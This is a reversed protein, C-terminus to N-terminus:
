PKARELVGTGLLPRLEGCAASPMTVFKFDCINGRFEPQTQDQTVSVFSMDTYRTGRHNRHFVDGMVANESEAIREVVRMIILASVASIVVTTAGGYNALPGNNPTDRPTRPLKEVINEQFIYPPPGTTVMFGWKLREAIFPDRAAPSPAM